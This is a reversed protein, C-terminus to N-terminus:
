HKGEVQVQIEIFDGKAMLSGFLKLLSKALVADDLM